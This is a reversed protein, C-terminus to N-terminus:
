PRCGSRCHRDCGTPDHRVGPVPLVERRGAPVVLADDHIVHASTLADLLMRTLKDLDPKVHPWRRKAAAKPRAVAFTAAIRVPGEFTFGNRVRLANGATELRKRWVKGQGTSDDETIPHVVPTKCKTCYRPGRCILSGKPMPDGHVRMGAM